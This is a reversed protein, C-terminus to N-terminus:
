SEEPILTAGVLIVFRGSPQEESSLLASHDLEQVADVHEESQLVVARRIAQNGEILHHLRRNAICHVHQHKCIM